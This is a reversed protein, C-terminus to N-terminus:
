HPRKFKGRIVELPERCACGDLHDNVMGVSQMFAYLTTPGVFTWGRTKLEKSLRVSAATTPNGKLYDVDVVTPREDPKPEFAWLWAALSGKRDGFELARKANNVASAIKARNRIIGANGMLREVDADGFRAVRGIDFGEFSERFNERKNLITQWSLGSQFGELCIKEFLLRDDRIPRGWEHDHYEPMASRWACYTAEGPTERRKESM